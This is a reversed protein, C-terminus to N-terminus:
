SSRPVQWLGAKPAPAETGKGDGQHKGKDRLGWLHTVAGRECKRADAYAIRVHKNANYVVASHVLLLQPHPHKYCVKCCKRNWTGRATWGM